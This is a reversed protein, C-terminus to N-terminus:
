RFFELPIPILVDYSVPNDFKDYEIGDATKHWDWATLPSTVREAEILKLDLKVPHDLCPNNALIAFAEGALRGSFEIGHVVDEFELWRM